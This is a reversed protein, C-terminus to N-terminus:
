EALMEFVEHLAAEYLHDRGIIELEDHLLISADQPTAVNVNRQPLTGGEEPL